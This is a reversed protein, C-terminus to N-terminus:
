VLCWRNGTRSPKWRLYQTVPSPVTRAAGHLGLIIVQLIKFPCNVTSSGSVAPSSWTLKRKKHNRKFLGGRFRITLFRMDGNKIDRNVFESLDKTSFIGGTTITLALNILGGWWIPWPIGQFTKGSDERIFPGQVMFFHIHSVDIPQFSYPVNPIFLCIWLFFM